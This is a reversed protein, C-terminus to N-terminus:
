DTYVLKERNEKRRRQRREQTKAERVDKAHGRRGGDHDMGVGLRWRAQFVAYGYDYSENAPQKRRHNTKM